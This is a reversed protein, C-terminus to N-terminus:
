QDMGLYMRRKIYSTYDENYYFGNLTNSFSIVAIPFDLADKNLNEAEGEKILETDFQFRFYDKAYDPLNTNISIIRPLYGEKSIRIGYVQNKLLSFRFGNTQNVLISDVVCSNSILDVKYAKSEGHKLNIIKGKVELCILTDPFFKRCNVKSEAAYNNLILLNSIM